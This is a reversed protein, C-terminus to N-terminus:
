VREVKTTTRTQVPQDLAWRLVRNVWENRSVGATEVREDARAALDPDVRLLWKVTSDSM